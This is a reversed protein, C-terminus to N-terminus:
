KRLFSITQHHNIVPNNSLIWSIWTLGLTLCLFSIMGLVVPQPHPPSLSASSCFLLSQPLTLDMIKRGPSCNPNRTSYPLVNRLNTRVTCVSPGEPYCPCARYWNAKFKQGSGLDPDEELGQEESRRKSPLHPKRSDGRMRDPVRTGAPLVPGPISSLVPVWSRGPLPEDGCARQPEPAEQVHWSGGPVGGWSASHNDLFGSALQKLYFQPRGSGSLAMPIHESSSRLRLHPGEKGIGLPGPLGSRSSQSDSVGAHAPPHATNKSWFSLLPCLTCM